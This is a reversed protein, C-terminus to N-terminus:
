AAVRYPLDAPAPFPAARRHPARHPLAQLADLLAAVDEHTTHLGLSARVAGMTTGTLGDVLMHACFRGARVGIGHERGLAAAVDETSWGDVTFAAVGVRPALPDTFLTHRHVRPQEALGHWLHRALSREHAEIAGFGLARLTDCAVGLAVAGPVNPSGAEHRQPGSAWRVEGRDV